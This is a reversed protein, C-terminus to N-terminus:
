KNKREEATVKWIQNFMLEDDSDDNYFDMEIQSVDYLGKIRVGLKVIQKKIKDTSNRTFKIWVIKNIPTSYKVGRDNYLVSYKMGTLDLEFEYFKVLSDEEMTYINSSFLM